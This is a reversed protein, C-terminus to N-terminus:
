PSVLRATESSEESVHKKRKAPLENGYLILSIINKIRLLALFKLPGKPLNIHLFRVPWRLENKDCITSTKLDQIFSNAPEPEEQLHVKSPIQASRQNALQQDIERIIREAQKIRKEIQEFTKRTVLGHNYKVQNLRLASEYTTGVIEDRTMWNTEYSLMQKWSPELLAKRHEELSRYFLKYGYEKPNEFVKSGPDMFPALPSIYPFLKKSKGFRKLLYDIYEVTDIVSERDQGPLGIMFFLDFKHCGSDLLKKLMGEMRQNDYPRGFVARLEPDHTEPSLQVNLHPVSDTIMELYQLHPIDFFELVIHNDLKQRRLLGLLKQAYEEGPQFIDGLIFIPGRFYRAIQEVDSAVLEPDRYAPKQRHCFNRYCDESGGCTRCHHTCGRCTFVATIPYEQWGHFPIPGCFDRHRIVSRIIQSYDLPYGNIDDPVWSTPNVKVEGNEKYTLNPVDDFRRGNQLAFLLRALPEETSDGRVVFDVQPYTILEDHFYTASLGGFILPTCPHQKKVIRALQLSGQAHPLWHLDIGFASAELSKIENEADYRANSLMKNAINIIRVDYGQKALYAAITVFGLPFMEFVPTSPIVDSIPGCM